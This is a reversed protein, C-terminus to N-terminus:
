WVRKRRSLPAHPRPGAHGDTGHGRELRTHALSSLCTSVRSSPLRLLRLAAGFSPNVAEGCSPLFEWWEAAEKESGRPTVAATVTAAAVQRPLHHSQFLALKDSEGAERRWSVGGLDQGPESLSAPLRAALSPHPTLGPRPCLHGTPHPHPCLPGWSAGPQCDLAEPPDRMTPLVGAKAPAPWSCRSVHSEEEGLRPEHEKEWGTLGEKAAAQTM